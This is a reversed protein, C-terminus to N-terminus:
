AANDIPDGNIGIVTNLKKAHRQEMASFMDKQVAPLGLDKRAAIELETFRKNFENQKATMGEVQKALVNIRTQMVRRKQRWIGREKAIAYRYAFVGVFAALLLVLVTFAFALM